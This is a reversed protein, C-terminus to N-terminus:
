RSSLLQAPPTDSDQRYPKQELNPGRCDRAVCYSKPDALSVHERRYPSPTREPNLTLRVDSLTLNGIHGETVFTGWHLEAVSNITEISVAFLQSLKALEVFSHLGDRKLGIGAHYSKRWKLLRGDYGLAVEFFEDTLLDIAEPSTQAQGREVLDKVLTRTLPENAQAANLSSLLFFLAACVM